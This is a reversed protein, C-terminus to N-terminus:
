RVPISRDNDGVLAGLKVPDLLSADAGAELLLKAAGARKHHVAAELLTEFPESVAMNPNFGNKLFQRIADDNGVMCSMYFKRHAKESGEGAQPKMPPLAALFGFDPREVKAGRDLLLSVIRPTSFVMATFLADDGNICTMNPDAREDLLMLVADLACARIAANLPLDSPPRGNFWCTEAGCDILVKAMEVNNDMVAEILIDPHQEGCDESGNLNLGNEVLHEVLLKDHKSIAFSILSAHRTGSPQDSLSERWIIHFDTDAENDMLINIIADRKLLIAHGLPPNENGGCNDIKEYIWDYLLLSSMSKPADARIAAHLLDSGFSDEPGDLPGVEPVETLIFDICSLLEREIAQFLYDGFEEILYTESFGGVHEGAARGSREKSMNELLVDHQLQLLRLCMNEPGWDLVDIPCVFDMFLEDLM